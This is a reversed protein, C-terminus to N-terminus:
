AVHDALGGLVVKRLILAQEDSPPPLKPDVVLSDDQFVVNAANTLQIRLKRIERMAKFRVGLQTCFEPSCGEAECAGVATLLIMMDGLLLFNGALKSRFVSLKEKFIQLKEKNEAVDSPQISDVFIEDVSLAAVLAVVYPLVKYKRALILMKAYRPAVPFSAMSMGLDSIVPSKVKKLAKFRNSSSGVKQLAGLSILLSEAAKIQEDDPPTPFPFNAVKDIRMS